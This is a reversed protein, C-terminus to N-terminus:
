EEEPEIFWDGYEARAWRTLRGTNDDEAAFRGDPLALVKCHETILEMRSGDMAVLRSALLETQLADLNLRRAAAWQWIEVSAFDIYGVKFIVGLVAVQDEDLIVPQWPLPNPSQKLRENSASHYSIGWADSDGIQELQASMFLHMLDADLDDGWPGRLTFDEGVRTWIFELLILLPNAVKATVYFNWQNPTSSHAAYPMGNAKVLVYQGSVVLHPFGAIGIGRKGSRASLVEYLSDRFKKENKFGRYGFIVRIAGIRENLLASYVARDFPPAKPFETRYNNANPALHGTIQSFARNMLTGNLNMTEYVEGSKVYALGVKQVTELHDFADALERSYLNKKIELVAIVDKIHWIYRELRPLQRGNGTVLMCDIQGSLAGRGDEIFGSVVRLGLDGPMARALVEQTLGEYMDGITPGHPIALGELEQAERQMLAHLFDAVTKIV